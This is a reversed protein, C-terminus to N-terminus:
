FIREMYSTVFDDPLERLFRSPIMFRKKGYIRRMTARSLFLLDKCRTMAVYFLRREEEDDGSEDLTRESPFIPEELGILFVVKFELGKACHITMLSVMDENPINDDYMALSVAELYDNLTAEPREELYEKLSSFLQGINEKKSITQLQKPNGLSEVYETDKVIEELIEDPRSHETLRRWKNIMAVFDAIKNTTRSPLIKNDLSAVMADFLSTSHEIAWDQLKEVTKAGIGRAPRNIVRELSISSHPQAVVRLYSTLDKIEARDYFRIGGVVRYPIGEKRLNDEILRSLSSQRYFVAMDKWDVEDQINLRVIQKVVRKAEDIDDAAEIAYIPEGKRRTTKLWKGLRKTNNSIVRSAAEVIMETSRYNKELKVIKTGTYDNTFGLLNQIEAGRWSYISQDEDGVVCLRKHDGTLLKILEYQTYNTDQFEDVLIYQYLEQYYNRTHEDKRLLLILESILDEFDLANNDRLRKHYHHYLRVYMESLEPEEGPDIFDEPNFMRMKTQNILNQMQAPPCKKEEFGLEKYCAKLLALQDREDCIMFNKDVGVKDAERRLLMASLSHFTAINMPTDWPINLLRTVRSKMEGAAKNTFTAAFIRRPALERERILWAIKYTIVRTKGSGAGAIVLLPGDCYEVAERQEDNLQDLTFISL